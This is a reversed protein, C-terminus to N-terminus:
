GCGHAGVRDVTEVIDPFVVVEVNRGFNLAEFFLNRLHVLSMVLVTDVVNSLIEHTFKVRRDHRKVPHKIM